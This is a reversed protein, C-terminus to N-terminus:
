ATGLGRCLRLVTNVGGTGKRLNDLEICRSKGIWVRQMEKVEEKMELEERQNEASISEEVELSAGFGEVDAGLMAKIPVAGKM